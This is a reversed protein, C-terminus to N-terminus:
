KKNRRRSFFAYALAAFMMPVDRFLIDFAGLNAFLIGAIVAAALFGSLWGGKGSLIWLALGVELISFAVLLTEPSAIPAALDRLWIPFFGMWSVPDRLSLSAAYLFGFALGVRLCWAVFFDRNMRGCYNNRNVFSEFPRSLAM